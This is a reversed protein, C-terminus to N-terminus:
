QPVITVLENERKKYLVLWWTGYKDFRITPRSIEAGYKLLMEKSNSTNVIGSYRQAFGGFLFSEFCLDQRADSMNRAIIWVMGAIERSWGALVRYASNRGLGLYSRAVTLVYNIFELM